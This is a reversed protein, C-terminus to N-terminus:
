RNAILLMIKGTLYCAMFGSMFAYVVLKIKQFNVKKKYVTRRTMSSTM